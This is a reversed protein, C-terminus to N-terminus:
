PADPTFFLNRINGTSGIWRDEKRMFMIRRSLYIHWTPTFSFHVIMCILTDNGTAVDLNFICRNGHCCFLLAHQLIVAVDLTAAYDNGLGGGGAVAPGAAAPRAPSSTERCGADAHAAAAAAKSANSDLSRCHSVMGSRHKQHM